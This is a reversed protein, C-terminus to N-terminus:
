NPMIPHFQEGKLTDIYHGKWPINKKELNHSSQQALWGHHYLELM